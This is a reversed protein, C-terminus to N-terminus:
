DANMSAPLVVLRAGLRTREELREITFSLRERGRQFVLVGDAQPSVSWGLQPLCGEYFDRVAALDRSAGEASATIIRGEASEFAAGASTEAYGPPLPLDPIAAFYRTDAFAPAAVILAAAFLVRSM